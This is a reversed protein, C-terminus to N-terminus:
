GSVQQFHFNGPGVGSWTFQFSQLHSRAIQTTASDAPHIWVLSSDPFWHHLSLGNVTLLM